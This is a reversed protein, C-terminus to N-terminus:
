KLRGVKQIKLERRQYCSIYSVNYEIYKSAPGTTFYMALLTCYNVGLVEFLTVLQIEIDIQLKFFLCVFLSQDSPM